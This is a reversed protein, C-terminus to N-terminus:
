HWASYKIGGLEFTDYQIPALVLALQITEGSVSIKESVEGVTLQANFVLVQGNQLAIASESQKMGAASYTVAYSGAFLGKLAYFGDANSTTEVSVGTARNLAKVKAGPVAASTVDQVNGQITAAGSQAWLAATSPLLFLATAAVRIRISSM